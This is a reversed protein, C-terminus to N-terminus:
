DALGIRELDIQGYVAALERLRAKQDDRLAAAGRGTVGKNFRTKTAQGDISHVAAKCEEISKGLGLFESVRNILAPKNAVMEEYTVFLCDLRGLRHVREWSAYFEVYWPMVHDIVLDYKQSQDLSPWVEGFFTNIIAGRDYFDSMSLVIDELRRVLVVPRIGFAQMMHINPGTARCHQQTVTNLTAVRLLYPLYLEQENQLYAYSLRTDPWETLKCLAEKLFTSGSKPMCAILLHEGLVEPTTEPLFDSLQSREDTIELLNTLDVRVPHEPEIAIAKRLFALGRHFKKAAMQEGAAACLATFLNTRLREIKPSNDNKPALDYADGFLDAARQKSGLKYYVDGLDSMVDANNPDVKLLEEFSSIATRYDGTESATKGAAILSDIRDVEIQARGASESRRSVM